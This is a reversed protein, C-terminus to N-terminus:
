SLSPRNQSNSMYSKALLKYLSILEYNKFSESSRTKVETTSPLTLSHKFDSWSKTKKPVM